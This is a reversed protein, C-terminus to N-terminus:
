GPDAVGHELALCGQGQAPITGHRASALSIHPSGQLLYLCCLRFVWYRRAFSERRDFQAAFCCGQRRVLISQERRELGLTEFDRSLLFLRGEDNEVVLNQDLHCSSLRFRVFVETGNRSNSWVLDGAM